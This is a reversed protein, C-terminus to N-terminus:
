QQSNIILTVSWQTTGPQPVIFACLVNVQQGAWTCAAEYTPFDPEVVTWEPMKEEQSEM